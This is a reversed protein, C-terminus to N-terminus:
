FPNKGNIEREINNLIEERSSVEEELFQIPIDLYSAHIIDRGVSIQKESVGLDKLTSVIKNEKM